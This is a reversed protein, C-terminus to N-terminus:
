SKQVCFELGTYSPKQKGASKIVIRELSQRRSIQICTHSPKNKRYMLSATKEQYVQRSRIMKLAVYLENTMNRESVSAM